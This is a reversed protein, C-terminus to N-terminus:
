KYDYEITSIINLSSKFRNLRMKSQHLSLPNNKDYILVILLHSSRSSRGASQITTRFNTGSLPIIANLGPIDIGELMTSILFKSDSNITSYYKVTDLESLQAEVPPNSLINGSTWIIGKVGLKVLNEYLTMGSSIKHIPIFFRKEPHRKIIEYICDALKNHTVLVDFAEQWNKSAKVDARSSIHCTIKEITVDIPLLRKVRVIGTFGLITISDSSLEYLENEFPSLTLGDKTDPSASFGYSRRLNPLYNFLKAISNASNHHVEDTLLTTTNKLWEISTSNLRKSRMFGVPNIVNVRKTFDYMGHDVNYLTLRNSIEQQIANDPALILINGPIIDSLCSIVETKGYGTFIDCIGSYFKIITNVDNIQHEGYGRPHKKFINVWKDTITLPSNNYITIDRDIGQKILYFVIYELLGARVSINFKDISEFHTIKKTYEILRKNRDMRIGIEVSTLFMKLNSIIVRDTANILLKYFSKPTIRVLANM